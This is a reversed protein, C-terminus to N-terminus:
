VRVFVIQCQNLHFTPLGHEVSLLVPEAGLNLGSGKLGKLGLILMHIRRVTTWISRLTGTPLIQVFM